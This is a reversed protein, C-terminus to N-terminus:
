GPRLRAAGGREVGGRRPRPALPGGGPGRPARQGRLPRRRPGLDRGAPQKPPCPQATPGRAPAVSADDSPKGREREGREGEMSIRASGRKSVLTAGGFMAEDKVDVSLHLDRLNATLRSPYGEGSGSGGGAGEGGGGGSGDGPSCALTLAAPCLGQHLRGRAHMAALGELAQRAAEKVYSQRLALAEAGVAPEAAARLAYQEASQASGGAPAELVLWQEGASAGERAVFGGLLRQVRLPRGGDAGPAPALLAAHAALENAALADALPFFDPRPWAKLEVRRGALPGRVVERHVAM